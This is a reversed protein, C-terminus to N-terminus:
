PLREAPAASLLLEVTWSQGDAQPEVTMSLVVEVANRPSQLTGGTSVRPGSLLESPASLKPRNDGVVNSQDGGGRGDFAAAVSVAEAAGAAVLTGTSHAGVVLLSSLNAGGAKSSASLRYGTNSRIEVPIRVETLDRTNGYINVTLSYDANRSSTVLVGPAEAAQPIALAVTESVGGTMRVSGGGTQARAVCTLCLTLMLSLSLGRILLTAM